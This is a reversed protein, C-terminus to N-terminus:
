PPLPGINHPPGMLSDMTGTILFSVRDSSKVADKIPPCGIPKELARKVLDIPAGLDPLDPPTVVTEINEGPVNLSM